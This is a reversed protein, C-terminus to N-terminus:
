FYSNFSHFSPFLIPTKELFSRKELFDETRVRVEEYVITTGGPGWGLERSSFM